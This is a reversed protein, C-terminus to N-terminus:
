WVNREHGDLYFNNLNLQCDSIIIKMQYICVKKLIDNMQFESQLKFKPIKIRHEHDRMQDVIESLDINPLHAELTSLGTRKNPLIIIFTFNSNAYDLGLAEANLENVDTHWVSKKMGIYEVDVTETESIYFKDRRTGRLPFPQAWTSNLYISNVLFIRTLPTIKDATVIEKIKGNTKEEVFNNILEITENEKRFDVSEVGTHFKNIAMKQFNTNLQFEQQIYIQSAIMLESQGASKEILEIYEHSQNAVVSKVGNLHLSKRFEEYTKGNTAQSLLTLAMAM